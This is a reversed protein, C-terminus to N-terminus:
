AVGLQGLRDYLMYNEIGTNGIKALNNGLGAMINGQNIAANGAANAGTQMINGAAGAYNTAVGSMANQASLGQASQDWLRGYEANREGVTRAFANGFEQSGMEQGLQVGAAIQNGSFLKGRAGASRELAKQGQEVRFQYGPDQILDGMGYKSLDFSGDKIKTSLTGLAEKGATIWPEAGAKNTEFIEKQLALQSATSKEQSALAKDQAKSQEMAGFISAGASIAGSLLMPILFPLM